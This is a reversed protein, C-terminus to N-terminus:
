NRKEYLIKGKEVIGILFSFKEQVLAEFEEPTYIFLDIGIRPEILRSVELIRDIPRKATKKVILLDIDSWEHMDSEVLSGFLIVREPEYDKRLVEVIRSLEEELLKKRQEITFLKM